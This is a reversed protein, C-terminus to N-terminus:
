VIEASLGRDLLQICIPKLEVLTGVKVSCKGKYHILYTCQEAQQLSHNCVQMLTEIVFEFTNVDDNHLIIERTRAKQEKLTVTEEVLTETQTASYFLNM